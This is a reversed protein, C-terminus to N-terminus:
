DMWQNGLAAVKPESPWLKGDSYKRALYRVIAHSEWLIFGDEDMTPVLGNPNLARYEQTDNKGFKGGVGEREIAIGAEACCWLVKQVNSSSKRCYIKLM